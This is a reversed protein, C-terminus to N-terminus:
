VFKLLTVIELNLPSFPQSGQLIYYMLELNSQVFEIM